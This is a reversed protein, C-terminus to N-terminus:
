YGGGSRGRGRLAALWPVADCAAALADAEASFVRESYYAVPTWAGMDEPDRRFEEFGFTGDPRSFIDVCRDVAPTSPSAVVTWSPDLRVSVRRLTRGDCGENDLVKRDTV